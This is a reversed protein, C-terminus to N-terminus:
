PNPKTAPASAPESDETKCTPFFPALSEGYRFDTFDCPHGFSGYCTEEANPDCYRDGHRVALASFRPPGDGREARTVLEGRATKFVVISYPFHKTPKDYCGCEHQEATLGQARFGQLEAESFRARVEDSLGHLHLAKDQGASGRAREADQGRLPMVLVCGVLLLAARTMLKGTSTTNM